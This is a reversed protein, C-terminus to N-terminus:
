TIAQLAYLFVIGWEMKSKWITLYIVHPAILPHILADLAFQPAHNANILQAVISHLLVPQIVAEKISSCLHNVHNVTIPTQEMALLAISRVTAAHEPQSITSAAQVLVTLSATM